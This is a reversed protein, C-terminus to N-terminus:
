CNQLAESYTSILFPMGAKMVFDPDFFAESHLYAQLLQHPESLTKNLAKFYHLHRVCNKFFSHKSESRLTWLNILPGFQTILTSYHLLYHHKPKLLIIPFLEKRDALYEEVLVRLFAVMEENVKPACIIDAVKRLTLYLCWVPDKTDVKHSVFLFLLRLLNWTKVAEGVLKNGKINVECPKSTTDSGLFKFSTIRFSLYKMSFWECTETFHRIFLLLDYSVVGEFLDHAICPYLVADCVHFFTLSNFPSKPGLRKLRRFQWIMSKQLGRKVLGVRIRESSKEHSYAIASFSLPPVSTKPSAGSLTPDWTIESSLYSQGRSTCVM